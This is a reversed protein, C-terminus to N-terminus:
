AAGGGAVRLGYCAAHRTLSRRSGDVQGSAAAAILEEALAGAIRYRKATEIVTSGDRVLDLPLLDRFARAIPAITGHRALWLRAVAHARHAILMKHDPDTTRQCVPWAETLDHAFACWLRAGAEDGADDLARAVREAHLPMIVGECAVAYAAEGVSAPTNNGITARMLAIARERKAKWVEDRNMTKNM